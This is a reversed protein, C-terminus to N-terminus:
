RDGEPARSQGSADISRVSSRGLEGAMGFAGTLLRGDVIVGGGVDTGLMLMAYTGDQPRGRDVFEGWVAANADNHVTTALGTAAELDERV